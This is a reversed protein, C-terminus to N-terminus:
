LSVEVMGWFQTQNWPMNEMRADTSANGERGEPTPVRLQVKDTKLVAGLWSEEPREEAQSPGQSDQSAM